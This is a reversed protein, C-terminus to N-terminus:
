VVVFRLFVIGLFALCHVILSYSPGKVQFVSDLRMAIENQGSIIRSQVSLALSIVYLLVKM